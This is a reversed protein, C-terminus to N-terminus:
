LLTSKYNFAHTKFFPLPNLYIEILEDLKGYRIIDDLKNCPIRYEIKNDYYIYSYDWFCYKVMNLLKNRFIIRSICLADSLAM